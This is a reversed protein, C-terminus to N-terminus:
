GRWDATCDEGDDEAEDEEDMGGGNAAEAETEATTVRACEEM